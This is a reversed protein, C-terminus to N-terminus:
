CARVEITAHCLVTGSPKLDIIQEGSYSQDSQTITKGARVTIDLRFEAGPASRLFRPDFTDSCQCMWRSLERGVNYVGTDLPVECEQQCSTNTCTGQVFVKCRSQIGPDVFAPPESPQEQAAIDPQRLRFEEIALQLPRNAQYEAPTGSMRQPSAVASREIWAREYTEGTAFDSVPDQMLVHSLPCQLTKLFEESDRHQQWTSIVRKLAKNTQLPHQGCNCWNQQQCANYLSARDYARGDAGMVPDQMLCLSWPCSFFHPVAACQRMRVVSRTADWMTSTVEFESFMAM